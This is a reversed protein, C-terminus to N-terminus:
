TGFPTGLWTWRCIAGLIHCSGLVSQAAGYLWFRRSCVKLAKCANIVNVTGYYNVAEYRAFPHFPGVLAAVHWVCDAGKVAKEVDEPKTIDGQLYIIRDDELAERPRAVVDFSM